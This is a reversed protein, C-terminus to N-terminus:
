RKTVVKDIGPPPFQFSKRNFLNKVQNTASKITATSGIIKIKKSGNTCLSDVATEYLATLTGLPGSILHLEDQIIISPPSCFREGKEDIGFIKRIINVTNFISSITNIMLKM